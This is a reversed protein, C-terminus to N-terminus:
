AAVEKKRRGRPGAAFDPKAVDIVRHTYGHVALEHADREAAAALLLKLTKDDAPSFVADCDMTARCPLGSTKMTPVELVHGAITLPRGGLPTYLPVVFRSSTAYASLM